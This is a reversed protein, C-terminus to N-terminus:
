KKVKLASGAKSLALVEKNSADFTIQMKARTDEILKEVDASTLGVTSIEPLTTIIIQGGNLVKRDDDLFTAYSSYVVPLIPVQHQIAM